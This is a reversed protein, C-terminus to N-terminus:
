NKWSRLYNLVCQISKQWSQRVNCNACLYFIFVEISKIEL